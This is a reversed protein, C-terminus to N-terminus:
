IFARFFFQGLDLLSQVGLFVLEGGLQVFADIAQRLFPRRLQQQLDQM